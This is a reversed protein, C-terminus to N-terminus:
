YVPIFPMSVQFIASMKKHKNNNNHQRWASDERILKRWFDVSDVNFKMSFNSPSPENRHLTKPKLFHQGTPKLWPDFGEIAQISTSPHEEALWCM